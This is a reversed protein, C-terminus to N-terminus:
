DEVGKVEGSVPDVKVGAPRGKWVAPCMRLRPRARKLLDSVDSTEGAFRYGLRLLEGADIM